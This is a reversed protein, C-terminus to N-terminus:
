KAVARKKSRGRRQAGETKALIQMAEIRALLARVTDLRAASIKDTDFEQWLFFLAVPVDLENALRRLLSISPERKNAEVLSIYNASVGLHEALKRQRVGSATRVVKIATGLNM